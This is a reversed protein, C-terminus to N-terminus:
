PLTISTTFVFREDALGDGKIDTDWYRFDFTFKEVALSLGANWYTYSDEGGAVRDAYAGDNGWQQGVLASLTPTFGWHKPLVQPLVQAFGVELTWVSGTEFQYDPSYFVTAGLTGDKWVEGSLGGKIELYENRFREDIFGFNYTHQFKQATIM